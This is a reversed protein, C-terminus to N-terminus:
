YRFQYLVDVGSSSAQGVGLTGRLLWNPLFRWDVSVSTRAGGGNETSTRATADSQEVTAKATVSDSLQYILTTGIYGNASAFSTSLGPAIDGLLANFQAAALGRSLAAARDTGDNSADGGDGLLLLALLESEPLPPTSRFSIKDDSLPLLLGV